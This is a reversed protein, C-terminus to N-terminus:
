EEAHATSPYSDEPQKLSYPSEVDVDELMMPKRVVGMEASYPHIRVEYSAQQSFENNVAPLM